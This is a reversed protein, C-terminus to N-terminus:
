IGNIVMLDWWWLEIYTSFGLMEVIKEDVNDAELSHLAAMLKFSVMAADGRQRCRLPIDPQQSVMPLDM